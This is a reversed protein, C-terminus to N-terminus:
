KDSYISYVSFCIGKRCFTTGKGPYDAPYVLFDARRFSGKGLRM